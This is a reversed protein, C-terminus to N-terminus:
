GGGDSAAGNIVEAATSDQTGQTGQTFKVKAANKQPPPLTALLTLYM